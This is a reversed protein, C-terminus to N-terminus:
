YDDDFPYDNLQPVFRGYCVIIDNSPICSIRSFRKNYIYPYIINKIHCKKLNEYCSVFNTFNTRSCKWPSYCAKEKTILNKLKQSKKYHFVYNYGYLKYYRNEKLELFNIANISITNNPNGPTPFPKTINSNQSFWSKPRLETAEYSFQYDYTITYLDINKRENNFANMIPRSLTILEQTWGNAPNSSSIVLTILSLLFIMM